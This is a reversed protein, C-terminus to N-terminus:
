WARRILGALEDPQMKVPMFRAIPDSLAMGTLREVDDDAISSPVGTAEGL